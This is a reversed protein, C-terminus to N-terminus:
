RTWKSCEAKIFLNMDEIDQECHHQSRWKGLLIQFYESLLDPVYNFFESTSEQGLDYIGKLIGMWYQKSQVPMNRDEYYKIKELYPALTEELMEEATEEPTSYGFRNNDSRQYLDEVDIMELEFYVEQVIEDVDVQKLVKEAEAFIRKKIEPDKKCLNGLVRLADDGSLGDLLNKLTHKGENVTSFPTRGPNNKVSRRDNFGYLAAVM